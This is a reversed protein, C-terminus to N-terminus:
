YNNTLALIQYPEAVVIHNILQKFLVIVNVIIFMINIYM